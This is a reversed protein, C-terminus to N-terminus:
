FMFMYKETRYSTQDWYELILLIYYYYYYYCICLLVFCGWVCVFISVCSFQIMEHKCHLAYKWYYGLSKIETIDIGLTLLQASVTNILALCQPSTPTSM